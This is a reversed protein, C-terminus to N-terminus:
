GSDADVKYTPTVMGTPYAHTGSLSLAGGGRGRLYRYRM